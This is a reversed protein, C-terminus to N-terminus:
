NRLENFSNKTIKGIKHPESYIGTSPNYKPIGFYIFHFGYQDYANIGDKVICDVEFWGYESMMEKVEQGNDDKILYYPGYGQILYFRDFKKLTKWDFDDKVKITKINGKKTKVKVM